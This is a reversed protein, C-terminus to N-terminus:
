FILGVFHFLLVPLLDAYYHSPGSLVSGGGGGWVGCECLASETLVWWRM